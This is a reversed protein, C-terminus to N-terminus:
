LNSKSKSHHLESEKEDELYDHDLWFVNKRMGIVDPLAATSPHDILNPYVTERILTSIDPRMRRQVELQAVPMLPRGREGISLREFQSKDLAHLAGQKSELSLDQFNNISPRLQEHDGIQICHEVTPLLASLMHPEMVEGAEECIIVKSRVHQLVSVRKALGSTTVGIVDAGELVRRDAEDHVKDLAKHCSTADDLTQSLEAVADSWVEALWHDILAYRENTDLSSVSAKAKRVIQAIDTATGQPQTGPALRAPKWTDFPYKGVLTFNEDDVQRFQSHILPYKRSLHHQLSKWDANKSSAHLRGLIKKTDEEHEELKQYM